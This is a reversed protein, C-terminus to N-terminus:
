RVKYGPYGSRAEVMMAQIPVTIAEAAGGSVLGHYSLVCHVTRGYYPPTLYVGWDGGAVSNGAGGWQTYVGIYCGTYTQTGHGGGAVSGLPPFGQPIGVVPPETVM